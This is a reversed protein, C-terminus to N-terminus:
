SVAPEPTSVARRQRSDRYASAWAYPLDDFKGRSPTRNPVRPHLPSRGHPPPQPAVLPHCQRFQQDGHGGEAEHEHRENTEEPPHLHAESMVALAALGVVFAPDGQLLEVPLDTGPAHEDVRRGLAVPSM